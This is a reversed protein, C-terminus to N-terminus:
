EGGGTRPEAGAHGITRLSVCITTGNTSDSQLIEIKGDLQHLRRRAQSLGQGHAGPGVGRATFIADRNERPIGPGSDRILIIMRGGEIRSDLDVEPAQVAARGRAARAANTLLNELINALDGPPVFLPPPASPVNASIRVGEHEERARRIASRITAEADARISHGLARFIGDVTAHMRAAADALAILDPPPSSDASAMFRGIGDIIQDSDIEFTAALSPDLDALPLIRRIERMQPLALEEFSALRARLRPVVVGPDAGEGISRSLSAIGGLYALWRAHSFGDIAEVLALRAGDPGPSLRIARRRSSDLYCLVGGLAAGSGWSGFATWATRVAEDSPPWFPFSAAVAVAFLIALALATRRARRRLPGCDPPRGRRLVRRYAYIAGGTVIGFIAAAPLLFLGRFMASREVFRRWLAIVSSALLGGPGNWAPEVIALRSGPTLGRRVIEGGPGPTFDVYLDFPGPGPCGFIFESAESRAPTVGTQRYGAIRGDGDRLTVAAGAVHPAGRRDLIRAKISRGSRSINHYLKAQRDDWLRLLLDPDGDDDEDFCVGEVAVATESIWHDPRARRFRGEGDNEMYVNEAPNKPSVPLWWPDQTMFLDLDGDLDFDAFLPSKAHRSAGEELRDSVDIFRDGENRYLLCHRHTTSAADGKRVDVSVFLDLDGDNDIDGLAMGTQRLGVEPLWRETACVLGSDSSIYLDTNCTILDPRGDSNLDGSAGESRYCGRPRTGQPEPLGTGHWSGHGHRYHFASDSYMTSIRYMVLEPGPSHLIDAIQLRSPAHRILPDVAPAAIETFRGCGVGRLIRIRKGDIGAIDVRGDGDLDGAVVGSLPLSDLGTGTLPAQISPSRRRGLRLLPADDLHTTLWDSRGDGDLDAALIGASRPLGARPAQKTEISSEQGPLPPGVRIDDIRAIQDIPFWAGIAISTVYVPWTFPRQDPHLFRPAIRELRTVSQREPDTREMLHTSRQRRSHTAWSTIGVLRADPNPSSRIYLDLSVGDNTDTDAVWWRWSAVATSDIQLPRPLTYHIEVTELDGGTTDWGTAQILLSTSGSLPRDTDLSPRLYREDGSRVKWGELGNSEFDLIFEDIPAGLAPGALLLLLITLRAM